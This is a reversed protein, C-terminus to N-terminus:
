AARRFTLNFRYAGTLSHEGQQLPLIGHYRLRAPGGWIVVDGHELAIRNSKEGRTFGGFLFTAPLGLSVSVIPQGFDTEDKDQHLSMKTGSEYRNILCADPAFDTFSGCQAASAALTAFVKPIPPWPNGTQPNVPSYRYGKRDTVWGLSGCNTMAVSMRQGGPTHMHRFPSKMAIEHIAAILAADFPLAFGPLFFAGPVIETPEALLRM